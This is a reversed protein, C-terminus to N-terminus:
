CMFVNICNSCDAINLTQLGALQVQSHFPLIWWCWYFSVQAGGVRHDVEDVDTVGSSM